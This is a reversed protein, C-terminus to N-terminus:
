KRVIQELSLGTSTRILAQSDDTIIINKNHEFPLVENGHWDIVGYMGGRQAVLLYGDGRTKASIEDVHVETEVGDAAAIMYVGEDVKWFTSCGITTVANRDYKIECSLRGAAVDYYGRLDGNEVGVYGNHVYNDTSVKGVMINNYECPVIQKQEKLSYLGKLKKTDDTVVVYGDSAKSIFYEVPMLENGATDIIGSVKQGKFNYRTGILWLGANVAQETVATFGDKVMDGTVQNVIAYEQVGYVPTTLKEMSLDCAKFEKDYLTIQEQGDQIAIYDGHAAAASFQDPLLSAIPTASAPEDGLYYLEYREIDFFEKGRKYTYQEETAPTLMYALAWRDSYVTFAGYIPETIQAGNLHVLARNNVGAENYATFCDFKSYSLNAFPFSALKEGATTYVSNARTFKETVIVYNTGNVATVAPMYELRATLEIGDAVAGCASLLLALLLSCAIIRKM